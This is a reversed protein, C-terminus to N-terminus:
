LPAPLDVVIFMNVPISEAEPPEAIIFPCLYASLVSFLKVGRVQINPDMTWIELKAGIKVFKHWQQQKM